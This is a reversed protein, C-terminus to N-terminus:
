RGDSRRLSSRRVSILATDRELAPLLQKAAQPPLDSVAVVEEAEQGPGMVLIDVIAGTNPWRHIQFRRAPFAPLHRALVEEFDDDMSEEDEEMLADIIQASRQLWFRNHMALCLAGDGPMDFVHFRGARQDELTTYPEDHFRIMEIRREQRDKWVALRREKVRRYRWVAVMGPVVFVPGWLVAILAREVWAGWDAPNWVTGGPPMKNGIATAIAAITMLLAFALLWYLLYTALSTLLAHTKPPLWQRELGRFEDHTAQRHEVEISM